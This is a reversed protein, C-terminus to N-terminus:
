GMQLFPPCVQGFMCFLFLALLATSSVMLVRPPFSFPTLERPCRLRTSVPSRFRGLTPAAPGAAPGSGPSAGISRRYFTESSLGRRTGFSARSRLRLDASHTSPFCSRRVLQMIPPRQMVPPRQLFVQSTSRWRRPCTRWSRPGDPLIPGSIAWLEPHLHQGHPRIQTSSRGRAAPEIKDFEPSPRADPASHGCGLRPFRVERRPVTTHPRFRPVSWSM